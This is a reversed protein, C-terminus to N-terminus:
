AALELAGNLSPDTIDWTALNGNADGLAKVTMGWTIAQGSSFKPSEVESVQANPMHMTWLMDGDRIVFFAAFPERKANAAIKFSAKGGDEIKVSGPELGYFAELVRPSSELAGFKLTLDRGTIITRVTGSQWSKVDETDESFEHEVGDDNFLGLTSWKDAASGEKAYAGAAVLEIAGTTTNIEAKPAIVGDAKKAVYMVGTTAVKVLDSDFNAAM